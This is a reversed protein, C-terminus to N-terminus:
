SPPHSHRPGVPAVNEASCALRLRLPWCEPAEAFLSSRLRASLRSNRSDEPQSRSLPANPFVIASKIAEDSSRLRALINIDCATLQAAAAGSKPGASRRGIPPELLSGAVDLAKCRSNPAPLRARRGRSM